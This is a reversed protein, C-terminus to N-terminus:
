AKLGGRTLGEIFQRQLFLFLIIVPLIMIVSAASILGWDRGYRTTFAYLGTSIPKMEPHHLFTVAILFENWAGLGAILATTLFGPWTIPVIVHWFVQWESAGDIRAAEDFDRPISVMFSRLLFTAFPSATAWYIIIVGLLHDVLGLKQWLFFLPVLFLQIPVSTGVVLYLALGDAGPPDLRALSYAAMGAIVIVGLVTCATIIVSNLVTTSYNGQTWAEQFNEWHITQPLGFPQANIEETSRISNMFLLLLPGMAFFALFTLLIYNSALSPTRRQRRVLLTSLFNM